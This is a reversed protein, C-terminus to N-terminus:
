NFTKAIVYNWKPGSTFPKWKVYEVRYILCTSGLNWLKNIQNNNINLLVSLILNNQLKQNNSLFYTQPMWFHIFIEM